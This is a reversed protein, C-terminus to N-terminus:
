NTDIKCYRAGFILTGIRVMTSGEELAVKYDGSMGMSIECFDDKESFFREKLEDFVSRLYAFESRVREMDDTFTAMGMVGRINVGALEDLTGSEIMGVAEEKSFGFKTEERAIHFQLLCDIVRGAKIAEKNIARLLKESDVSEIMHIFGAIHKVKNRQLHGIMHWKIYHPLKEYKGLLEQVRNEGFFRHGADYAKMIEDVTKTKSVAVLKVNGPLEDKLQKINESTDSM